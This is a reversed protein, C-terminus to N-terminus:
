RIRRFISDLEKKMTALTKTTQRLEVSTNFYNLESIRNLSAIKENTVEFVSMRYHIIGRAYLYNHQHTLMESVLIIIHVEQFLAGKSILHWRSMEGM